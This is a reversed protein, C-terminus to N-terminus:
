ENLATRLDKHIRGAMTKALPIAEWASVVSDVHVPPVPVQAGPVQDLPTGEDEILATKLLVALEAPDVTLRPPVAAVACPIQTDPPVAAPSVVILPVPVRVMAPVAVKSLLVFAPTRRSPAPLLLRVMVAGTVTLLLVFKSTLLAPVSVREVPVSVMVLPSVKVNDPVLAEPLVTMLLLMALVVPASVTFVEPVAVSLPM